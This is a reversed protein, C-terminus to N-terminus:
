RRWHAPVDWAKRLAERRAEDPTIGVDRLLHEPLRDLHRRGRAVAAMRLLRALYKTAESPRAGRWLSQLTALTGTIAPM